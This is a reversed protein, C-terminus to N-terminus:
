GRSGPVSKIFCMFHFWASLFEPMVVRLSNRAAEAAIAATDEKALAVSAPAPADPPRARGPPGREQAAALCWGRAEGAVPDGEDRAFGNQLARGTRAGVARLHKACPSDSRLFAGAVPRARSHVRRACGKGAGEGARPTGRARSPRFPKGPLCVTAPAEFPRIGRFGLLVLPQPRTQFCPGFVALFKKLGGQM